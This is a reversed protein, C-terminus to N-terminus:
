CTPSSCRTTACAARARHRPQAARARRVEPPPRAQRAGADELLPKLKRWCRRRPRAARARRSLTHALPVYAARGPEVCFSVGVIEAQMYDLSTTETDFAFLEARACDSSGTTSSRRPSSPRTTARRGRERAAPPATAAAACGARGGHSAHAPLAPRPRRSSRAGGAAAAAALAARAAHVARAAARRRARPPRPGAPSCRRPRADCDITALQRSLALTTSTRACARASRARSRPRRARAARRAHTYQNLWKAATKPGVKAHRPHQRLQRRGARPLRHDARPVRRVQGERRRPRAVLRDHHQGAHHPRGGAAGHGQRRHLDARAHRRAAARRALTGIVDDAEVGPVRLLPLGLAEVAAILPEVQARLDDPMPPRHAKYEAFLEDRFTKGPADFVVAILPPDQEKLLKALMNLVGLVAGPPSAGRTPSRRCRTSPGTCTPRATWWCWRARNLWPHRTRHPPAQPPPPAPTAPPRRHRPAARGADGTPDHRARAARGGRRDEGAPVASGEARLGVRCGGARVPEGRGLRKM